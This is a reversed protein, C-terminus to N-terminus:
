YRVTYFDWTKEWAAGNKEGVISVWYRKGPSLPKYPYLAITSAGALNADSGPDLWVHPLEQQDDEAWIKHSTVKFGANGSWTVSIITGSPYGSPPPPPQPSEMGDFSVPIGSSGPPPYIGEAVPGSYSTGAADVSGFDVTDIKTSNQWGGGGAAGYGMAVMQANMFPIRHYLTNMWGDVSGEPHHMFAIVESAGAAYGFYADREWFNVGTFGESWSPNEDHPSLGTANYQDIHTVWYDCHAQCADNLGEIMDLPPLGSQWRYWNARDLARIQDERATDPVFGTGPGDEGPDEAADALLLPDVDRAQDFAEDGCGPSALLGVAAVLVPVSLPFREVM